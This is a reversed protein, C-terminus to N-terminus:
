TGSITTEARDISVTGKATPLAIHELLWFHPKPVKTFAIEWNLKEPPQGPTAAYDAECIVIPSKKQEEGAPKPHLSLDFRSRGTFIPLLHNCPNGAPSLPKLSTLLLASLPDFVGKLRPNITADTGGSGKFNVDITGEEGGSLVLQFREPTLKVGARAGSALGKIKTSDLITGVDAWVAVEYQKANYKTQLIVEGTPIGSLTVAYRSVVVEARVGWCVSLAALLLAAFAKSGSATGKAVPRSFSLSQRYTSKM